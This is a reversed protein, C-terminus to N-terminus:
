APQPLPARTLGDSYASVNEAFSLMDDLYFAM